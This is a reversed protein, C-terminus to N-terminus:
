RLMFGCATAPFRPWLRSGAPGAAWKEFDARATQRRDNIQKKLDAIQGDLITLQKRDEPTGAVFMVPPTDKVNGDMAAQTTNNFFASLSYFEKQPM